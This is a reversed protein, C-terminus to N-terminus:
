KKFAANIFAMLTAINYPIAAFLWYLSEKRKLIFGWDAIVSYIFNAFGKCCISFVDQEEIGKYKDYVQGKIRKYLSGLSHNHSHYVKAKPQYSIGYGKKIMEKAWSHDETTGIKENFKVDKWLNKKFVSSVNSFFCDKTQSKEKDSFTGLIKRAELPNCDKRPIERAYAGAIMENELPAILNELWSNDLPTAHASLSICYKGNAKSCGINLAKGFSFDRKKMKIITVPFKSAIRLTNDTSESDVIIVEFDRYAQDFIKNLCDEINKEENYAKIIISVIPKEM